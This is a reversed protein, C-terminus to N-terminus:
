LQRLFLNGPKLSCEFRSKGGFTGDCGNEFKDDLFGFGLQWNTSPKPKARKCCMGEKGCLRCRGQKNGCKYYCNIGANAFTPEKLSMSKEYGLELNSRKLWMKTDSLKITKTNKYSLLYSDKEICDEVTEEMCVVLQRENQEQNDDFMGNLNSFPKSKDNHQCEENIKGSDYRIGHPFWWGSRFLRACEYNRKKDFTSFSSHFFDHYHKWEKRQGFKEADNKLYSPNILIIQGGEVGFSLQNGLSIIPYSENQNREYDTKITEESIIIYTDKLNYTFDDVAEQLLIFQDFTAFVKSGDDKTAEIQLITNNNRNLELINKLGLFMEKEVFGFGKVYENYGREFYNRSNGIFPARKQILTSGNRCYSFLQEDSLKLMYLGDPKNDQQVEYCDKYISLHPIITHMSISVCFLACFFLFGLGILVELCTSKDVRQVNCNKLNDSPLNTTGDVGEIQLENSETPSKISTSNTKAQSSNILNRWIYIKNLYLYWLMFIMYELLIIVFIYSQFNFPSFMKSFTEESSFYMTCILRAFIELVSLTWVMIFSRDLRLKGQPSFQIFERIQVPVNLNAVLLLLTKLDYKRDKRMISTLMALLTFKMAIISLWIICGQNEHSKLMILVASTILSTAIKILHIFILVIKEKILLSENELINIYAVVGTGMFLYSVTSILIFLNRANLNIVNLIGSSLGLDETNGSSFAFISKNLIGEQFPQNFIILTVLIQLFSEILSEMVKMFEFGGLSKKEETYNLMAVLQEYENKTIPGISWDIQNHNKIGDEANHRGNVIREFQDKVLRNDMYSNVSMMIGTIPFFLVMIMSIIFNAYRSGHHPCSSVASYRHFFTFVSVLIQGLFLSSIYISFLYIDDRSIRDQSEENYLTQYLYIGFAYDKMLDMTFLIMKIFPLMFSSRFITKVILSIYLNGKTLITPKQKLDFINAGNNKYLCKITEHENGGHCYLELQFIKEYVENRQKMINTLNEFSVKQDFQNRIYQFIPKMERKLVKDKHVEFYASRQEEWTSLMFENSNKFTVLEKSEEGMLMTMLMRKKTWEEDGMCITYKKLCKICMFTHIVFSFSKLSMMITLIGCVIASSYLLAMSLPFSQCTNESEDENLLCDFVGDCVKDVPIYQERDSSCRWLKPTLNFFKMLKEDPENCIQNVYPCNEIMWQSKTTLLSSHPCFFRTGEQELCKEVCDLNYKCKNRPYRDYYHTGSKNCAVSHEICKAEFPCKIKGLKRCDEKSCNIEDEQNPCDVIGDCMQGGLICKNSRTCKVYADEGFEERDWASLRLKKCYENTCTENGGHTSTCPDCEKKNAVCKTDNPCKHEDFSSSINNSENHFSFCNDRGTCKLYYKIYYKEVSPCKELSDYSKSCVMKQEESQYNKTVRIGAKWQKMNWKADLKNYCYDHNPCKDENFWKCLWKGFKPDDVNIEANIVILSQFVILVIGLAIFGNRKMKESIKQEFWIKM